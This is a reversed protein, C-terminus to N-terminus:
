NNTISFDPDKLYKKLENLTNDWNIVYGIKRVNNIKIRGLDTTKAKIGIKAIDLKFKARTINENYDNDKCWYKYSKYMTSLHIRVDNKQTLDIDGIKGKMADIIYLIPKPVSNPNLEKKLKTIPIKKKDGQSVDRKMLLKHEKNEIKSNSIEPFLQYLEDCSLPIYNNVPYTKGFCRRNICRLLMGRDTIIIYCKPDNHYGEILPCYFNNLLISYEENSKVIKSIEIIDNMFMNNNNHIINSVCMDINAPARKKFGYKDIFDDMNQTSMSKNCNSCIPRLNNVNITGGKSRAIIHGCEFDHATVYSGCGVYCEAEYVKGNYERWVTNRVASPIRKSSM